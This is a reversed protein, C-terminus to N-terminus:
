NADERIVQAGGLSCLFSSVALPHEQFHNRAARIPSPRQQCGESSIYIAIGGVIALDDFRAKADEVISSLSEVKGGSRIFMQWCFPQSRIVSTNFRIM